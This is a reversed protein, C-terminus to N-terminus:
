FKGSVMTLALDVFSYTFLGYEVLEPVMQIAEYLKDSAYFEVLFRVRNEVRRQTADTDRAKMPVGM